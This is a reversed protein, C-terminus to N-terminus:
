INALAKSRACSEFTAWASKRLKKERNAKDVKKMAEVVDWAGPSIFLFCPFMCVILNVYQIEFIENDKNMNKLTKFQKSNVGLVARISIGSGRSRRGGTPM